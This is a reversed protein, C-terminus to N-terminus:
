LNMTVQAGLEEDKTVEISNLIRAAGVVLSYRLM